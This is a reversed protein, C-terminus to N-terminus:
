LPPLGDCLLEVDNGVAFQLALLADSARVSGDGSLDCVSVPCDVLGVASRLVSLADGARVTGDGDFDGCSRPPMTTTTTTTTSLSPCDLATAVVDPLPDLPSDDPAFAEDVDIRFRELAPIFRTPIFICSALPLPGQLSTLSLLNLALESAEVDDQQSLGASGEAQCAGEPFFGGARQYDLTLGLRMLPESSGLALALTCNEPPLTTTTVTGLDITTSSTSTTTVQGECVVSLVRAIPVPQLDIPEEPDGEGPLQGSRALLTTSTPAMTTTTSTSTTTTSSTTTTTSVFAYRGTAKVVAVEFDGVAPPSTMQGTCAFLPGPTDVSGFAAFGVTLVGSGAGPVDEGVAVAGPDLAECRIKNDSDPWFVAPRPYTVEIEASAITAERDIGVTVTCAIRSSGGAQAPTCWALALMILGAINRKM